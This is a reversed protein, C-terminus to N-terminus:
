HRRTGHRFRTEHDWLHACGPCQVHLLTGTTSLLYRWHDRCNRGAGCEACGEDDRCRPCPVWARRGLDAHPDIPLM